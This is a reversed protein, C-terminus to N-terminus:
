RQLTLTSFTKLSGRFDFSRRSVPLWFTADVSCSHVSAAEQFSRFVVSLVVSWVEDDCLELPFLGMRANRFTSKGSGTVRRM